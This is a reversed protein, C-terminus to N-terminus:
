ELALRSTLSDDSLRIGPTDVMQASATRLPASRVTVTSGRVNQEDGAAEGTLARFLASKGVSELGILVIKPMVAEM